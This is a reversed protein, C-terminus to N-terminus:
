FGGTDIGTLDTKRTLYFTLMRYCKWDGDHGVCETRRPEINVDFLRCNITLCLNQFEQKASYFAFDRAANESYSYGVGCTDISSEHVASSQSTCFWGDSERKSEASAISGISLLALIITKMGLRDAKKLPNKLEFVVGGSHYTFGM